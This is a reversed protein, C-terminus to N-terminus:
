EGGKGDLIRGSLEAFQRPDMKQELVFLPDNPGQELMLGNQISINKPDTPWGPTPGAHQNFATLFVELCMPGQQQLVQERIAKLSSLHHFVDNGSLPQFPIGVASCMKELSIPCRRQEITSSMSQNNNEVIFLLPLRQSKSFVLGEYFPGEEMAGDGTLVTVLGPKQLVQKGMALGCAMSLNNGLISSAYMVGVGPNALNMSGLKGRGAGTPLLQYEDLVPKLSKARALNYAINRHSLILQDDGTMMRSVAVAIAEYGFALHIPILFKKQKLDENVLHQWYRLLMMEEAIQLREGELKERTATSNM